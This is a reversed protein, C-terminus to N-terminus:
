NEIHGLLNLWVEPYNPDNSKISVSGSFETDLPPNWRLIIQTVQQHKIKKKRVRVKICDCGGELQHIILPPTDLNTLQLIKQYGKKPPKGEFELELYPTEKSFTHEEIQITQASLLSPFLLALVLFKPSM